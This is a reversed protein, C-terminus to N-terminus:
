KGTDINSYASVTKLFSNSNESKFELFRSRKMINLRRKYNDYISLAVCICRMKKRQIQAVTKSQM